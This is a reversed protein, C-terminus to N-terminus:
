IETYINEAKLQTKNSLDKLFCRLHNNQVHSIRWSARIPKQFMRFQSFFSIHFNNTCFKLIILCILELQIYFGKVVDQFDMFTKNLPEFTLTWAFKRGPGRGAEMLFNHCFARDHLPHEQQQQCRFIRTCDTFLPNDFCKQATCTIGSCVFKEKLRLNHKM